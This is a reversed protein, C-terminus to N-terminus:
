LWKVCPMLVRLYSFIPILWWLGIILRSLDVTKDFFHSQRLHKETLKVFNRVVAKECFVKSRSYRSFEKKTKPNQKQNIKKQPWDLKYSICLQAICSVSFQFELQIRITISNDNLRKDSHWNVEKSLIKRKMQSRM